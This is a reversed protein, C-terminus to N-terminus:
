TAQKIDPFILSWLSPYPVAEGIFGVEPRSVSM